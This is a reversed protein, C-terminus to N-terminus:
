LYYDIPMFLLQFNIFIGIPGTNNDLGAIAEKVEKWTKRDM